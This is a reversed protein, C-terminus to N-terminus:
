AKLRFLQMPKTNPNQPKKTTQNKKKKKEHFHSISYQGVTVLHCQPFFCLDSALVPFLMGMSFLLSSWFGCLHPGNAGQHASVEFQIVLLPLLQLLLDAVVPIVTEDPRRDPHQVVLLPFLEHQSCWPRLRLISPAPPFAPSPFVQVTPSYESGMKLSVFAAILALYKCTHYILKMCLQTHYLNPIM